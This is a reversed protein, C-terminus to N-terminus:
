KCEARQEVLRQEADANRDCERQEARETISDAGGVICGRVEPQQQTIQDNREKRMQGGRRNQPVKRDVRSPMRDDAAPQILADHTGLSQGSGRSGAIFGSRTSETEWRLTLMGYSTTRTM